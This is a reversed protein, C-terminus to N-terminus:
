NEFLPQTTEMDSPFPLGHKKLWEYRAIVIANTKLPKKKASALFLKFQKKQRSNKMKFKNITIGM